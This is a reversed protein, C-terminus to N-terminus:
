FLLHLMLLLLDERKEQRENRKVQFFCVCIFLVNSTMTYYLCPCCLLEPLCYLIIFMQIYVGQCVCCIWKGVPVNALGVCEMHFWTLPCGPSDCAIMDGFEGQGCLYYVDCEQISATLVAAMKSPVFGWRHGM